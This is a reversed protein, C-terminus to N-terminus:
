AAKMLQLTEKLLKITQIFKTRAQNAQDRATLAQQRQINYKAPEIAEFGAISDAALQKALELSTKAEDLKAQSSTMNKGAESMSTIKAQLKLIFVNLKPYYAELFRHRLRNAHLQAVNDRVEQKDEKVEGVIEKKIQGPAIPVGAPPNALVLSTFLSYLILFLPVLLFKKM